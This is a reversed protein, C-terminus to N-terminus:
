QKTLAEIRAQSKEALEHKPHKTIVYQFFNNVYDRAKKKSAPSNARQLLLESCRGAEFGSKAQWNKISDPANEAGFGYMVRQFEPIALDFRQNAFHIEGMMFRARAAVENRFHDAVEGYMQLAKDPNEAQQYAFGTEYFVQAMYATSPFRERLEDYWGIAEDWKKLQAASQGGHLLVLERAQRDASDRLTTSNENKEKIRQRAVSYAKIADEYKSQNFSCEGVMMLADLTLRGDRHKDAQKQFAEKSKSYDAAKFQSWGLRYLSKESLEDEGTQEAAMSFYEAAKKWDKSEYFSQGVYYAAESTLTKDSSQGILKTFTKVATEQDNSERQSWGLEYLVKDIAPYDPVEKVLQELREAAKDPKDEKQDILALEYLVHGLEIGQPNFALYGELDKRAADLKELNRRCMGRALLGESYIPHDSYEKLLTNLSQFAEDYESTEMLLRARSYLAYPMLGPDAKSAVIQDYLLLANGSDNQGTALQALKYRAQDAMRQNPLKAVIAQWTEQAANRDGSILWAQGSMLWAEEARPWSPDSDYSARFAKAADVPKDMAMYAQGLLLQAEARQGKEPLENASRRLLQITEDARDAYNLALAARLTWLPRQLADSPDASKLLELYATAAEGYKQTALQSEAAVFRVDPALIDDGFRQLFESALEIATEPQNLQLASFAANYLARPAVPSDPADRYVQEFVDFSEKIMAPDLSLAEALDLQLEAKFKGTAGASLHKTAVNKASEPDNKSLHIRALWHAAETSADPSKQNLVREFRKAAEDIDGSRYTTQASALMAAAANTSDPYVTLLREYKEAAEKPRQAQALAYAQRFLAYSLDDEDETSELAKDFAEIADDYRKKLIWTDGLRLHVDTVLDSKDCNSLLQRFSAVASDFQDLQEYAVGRAYLADCRLPSEKANSLSIMKDYLTIARESDGLGYAAEGSYFLARDLFQSKPFENRLISFADITQQLRKKDQNPAVGAVSYLCWGQNALSEERLDYNDDQIARGFADSAAVYDPDEKQMFCVGLYHAANSAMPDDPYKELFTRWGDIALALVGNTQFNAADAYAAIAEESSERDDEAFADHSSVFIALIAFVLGFRYRYTSSLNSLVQSSFM